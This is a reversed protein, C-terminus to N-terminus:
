LPLTLKILPLAEILPYPLTFPMPVYQTIIPLDAEVFLPSAKHIEISARKVADEVGRHGDPCHSNYIRCIESANTVPTEINAFVPPFRLARYGNPHRKPGFISSLLINDVRAYDSSPFSESNLQALIRELPSKPQNEPYSPQIDEVYSHNPKVNRTSRRTAM